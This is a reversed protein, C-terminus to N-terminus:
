LIHSASLEQVRPVSSQKYFGIQLKSEQVGQLGIFFEGSAAGWVGQDM